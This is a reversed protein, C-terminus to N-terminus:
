HTNTHENHIPTLKIDFCVRSKSFSSAWYLDMQLLHSTSAYINDSKSHTDTNEEEEEEKKYKWEIRTKTLKQLVGFLVLIVFIVHLHLKSWKFVLKPNQNLYIAQWEQCGCVIDPSIQDSENKNEWRIEFILFSYESNFIAPRLAHIPLSHPLNLSLSFTSIRNQHRYFTLFINSISYVIFILISIEKISNLRIEKKKRNRADSETKYSTTEFGISM